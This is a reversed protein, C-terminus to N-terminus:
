KRVLGFRSGRHWSDNIGEGKGAMDTIAKSLSITKLQPKILYEYVMYLGHGHRRTIPELSVAIQLPDETGYRCWHYFLEETKSELPLRALVVALHIQNAYLGKIGWWWEGKKEFPKIQPFFSEVKTLWTLYPEKRHIFNEHNIQLELDIKPDKLLRARQNIYAVCPYVGSYTSAGIAESLDINNAGIRIYSNNLSM